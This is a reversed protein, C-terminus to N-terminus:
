SSLNAPTPRTLPNALSPNSIASLRMGQLCLLDSGVPAFRRAQIFTGLGSVFLAMSIPYPAESLLGLAGGIILTIIGGFSALVQQLAAFIAASFHPRDELGYILDSGNNSRSSAPTTM